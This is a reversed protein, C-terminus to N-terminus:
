IITSVIYERELWFDCASQLTAKMLHLDPQKHLVADAGAEYCRQVGENTIDGSLVLIPTQQIKEGPLSRSNKITKLLQVGNMEPMNLDLIILAPLSAEDRAQLVKLHNYLAKPSEFFKVPYQKRLTKLLKFFIFQFDPDDDVLFIEKSM